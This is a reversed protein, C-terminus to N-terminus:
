DPRAVACGLEGLGLERPVEGLRIAEGYAGRYAAPLLSGLRIMMEHSAHRRGARTDLTAPPRVHFPPGFQVTIEPRSLRPLSRHLRETGTLAVPVVAAGSRLALFAAGPKAAGLSGTPSRRGEPAIGVLWGRELLRVATRISWLDLGEPSLWLGGALEVLRRAFTRSRYKAAVLGTVDRRSFLSFILHADFNSLHNFILVCAGREPISDGGIVRVQAACGYFVRAARCIVERSTV